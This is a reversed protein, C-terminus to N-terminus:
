HSHPEEGGYFAATREADALAGAEDTGAAISARCWADSCRRSFARGPASVSWAESQKPDFSVGTALHEGLGMIALDWGVGVAGPGYQEWFEDPVHAVHELRLTTAKGPGETLGVTVWSVDGGM